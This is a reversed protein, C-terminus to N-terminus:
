LHNEIASAPKPCEIKGSHVKSHCAGCLTVLNDMEHSRTERFPRIHHTNLNEVSGCAQCCFGDREKVAKRITLWETGYKTVPIKGGGWNPNREGFLGYMPNREGMKSESNKRRAEPQKAPNNEGRNDIIGERILSRIIQSSQMRREPNDVWQMAAASSRDRREIGLDDFWSWLNRDSVGLQIAIQKIGLKQNHYLDILLDRIPVGFPSAVENQRLKRMWKNRHDACCCNIDRADKRKIKFVKDCIPCIREVQTNRSM